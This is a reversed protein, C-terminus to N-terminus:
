GRHLDRAEQLLLARGLRVKGLPVFLFFMNYHEHEWWCTGVRRIGVQAWDQSYTRGAELDRSAVSGLLTPALYASLWDNTGRPVFFDSVYFLPGNTSSM